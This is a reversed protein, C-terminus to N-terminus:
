VVIIEVPLRSLKEPAGTTTLYTDSVLHNPGRDWFSMPAIAIVEGPLVENLLKASGPATNKYDVLSPRGMDDISNVFKQGSASTLYEAVKDDIDKQTHGPRLLESSVRLMGKSLEFRKVFDEPPKGLFIPESVFSSYGAYSSYLEVNIFDGKQLKRETCETVYPYAQGKARPSPWHASNFNIGQGIEAGSSVLSGMCAGLVEREPVGPRAVSAMAMLAKEGNEVSKRCFEVEAPSKIRTCALFVDGCDVFKVDPLEKLLQNYTSISMEQVRETGITGKEFGLEKIKKIATGLPVRSSQEIIELDPSSLIERAYGFMMNEPMILSPNGRQPLICICADSMMGSVGVTYRLDFSNRILLCDLNKSSMAKQLAQWRRKFEERPFTPVEYNEAIKITRFMGDSLGASFYRNFGQATGLRGGLAFPVMAATAARGVFERRGILNRM